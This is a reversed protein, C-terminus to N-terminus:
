TNARRLRFRKKMTPYLFFLPTGCASIMKGGKFIVTMKKPLMMEMLRSVKNYPYTIEYEIEGSEIKKESCSLLSISLVLLILYALKM